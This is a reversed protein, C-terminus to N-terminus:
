SPPGDKDIEVEEIDAKTHLGLITCCTMDHIAYIWRTYLDAQEDFWPYYLM